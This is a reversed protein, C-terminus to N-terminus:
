KDTTGVPADDADSDRDTVDIRQACEPCVVWDRRMSQIDKVNYEFECGCRPCKAQWEKSFNGSKTVKM